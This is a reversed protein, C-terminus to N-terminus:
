KLKEDITEWQRNTAMVFRVQGKSERAWLEGILRDEKAESTSYRDAGKYEIALIKGDSLKCMFDPWFRDDAKQLFFA